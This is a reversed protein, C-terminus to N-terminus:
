PKPKFEGADYKTWFEKATLTTYNGGVYADITTLTPMARLVEIGQQIKDVSFAIRQLPMGALPTLDTVGTVAINLDGLPMGALPTLDHLSGDNDVDLVELRLGKLVTLDLGRSWLVLRKLPLTGLVSLGRFRGALDLNQLPMGKLPTLDILGSNSPKALLEVLPMGALPSLDDFVGQIDLRKLPMGRLPALNTIGCSLADLVELPMGRLPTLDVVKSSTISLSRIRMGELASLDSVGTNGINLDEIPMGELPRLDVVSTGRIEVVSLPMGRLPSLDTIQKFGRAKFIFKSDPTHSVGVYGSPLGPWAQAIKQNYLKLKDSLTSAFQVALAPMGRRGIIAALEAVPVQEVGRALAIGCIERLRRADGDAPALRMAAECAKAAPAFQGKRYLLIAQILWGDALSEDFEAAAKVLSEAVDYKGQEALLKASDVLAPASAKRDAQRHAQEATFADLAQEAKRRQVIEGRRAKQVWIFSVTLVVVVVTVLAAVGRKLAQMRRQRARQEAKLKRVRELLAAQEKDKTTLLSEALDLDGRECACKAYALTTARLGTAATRNEPWLKLAQRFGSAAEAFHAYSQTQEAKAQEETALHALAISEEHRQYERVVAQLAKVSGYRDKPETAMAKLAIQVLEGAKDTPEIRNAAAAELCGMVEAGTHPRKGTVIEYLIAGLLYVDSAPGIRETEGKAMEPAMYAPTGGIAFGAGVKEAKGQETFAAALGWDMLLVEGYEGLMVNEPKLDRHLVGRSHAFAVADAVRLWIELNESLSLSGLKASWPTGEVRKMAYFPIGQDNTGLDHVPVINPHTLDATARVESLFENREAPDQAAEPKIMKLAITRDVSTQRAAYVIGMGGEGLVDLLEYDAPPHVKVGAEAVRQRRLNLLSGVTEAKKADRHLSPSKLTMEPQAGERITPGWMATLTAEDIIEDEAAAMTVAPLTLKGQCKPCVVERGALEDGCEMPQGCHPCSFKM